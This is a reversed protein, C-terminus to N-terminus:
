LFFLCKTKWLTGCYRGPVIFGSGGINSNMNETHNLFCFPFSSSRHSLFYRLGVITIQKTHKAKMKKELEPKNTIERERERKTKCDTETTEWRRLVTLLLPSLLFPTSSVVSIRCDDSGTSRRSFSGHDVRPHFSRFASYTCRYRRNPKTRIVENSRLSGGGCRYRRTM